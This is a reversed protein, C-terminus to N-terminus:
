PTGQGHILRIDSTPRPSFGSPREGIHMHPVRAMGPPASVSALLVPVIPTRTISVSFVALLACLMCLRMRVTRRDSIPLFLFFLMALILLADILFM